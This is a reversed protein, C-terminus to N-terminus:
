INGTIPCQPNVTKPMELWCSSPCLHLPETESASASTVCLSALPCRAGRARHWGSGHLLPSSSAPFSGDGPSVAPVCGTGCPWGSSRRCIVRSVLSPALLKISVQLGAEGPLLLVDADAPPQLGPVSCILSCNGMVWVPLSRRGTGSSSCCQHGGNNKLSPSWPALIHLPDNCLSVSLLSSKVLHLASRNFQKRSFHPQYAAALKGHLALCHGTWFYSSHHTAPTISWSNHCNIILLIQLEKPTSPSDWMPMKVQVYELVDGVAPPSFRIKGPM